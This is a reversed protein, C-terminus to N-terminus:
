LKNIIKDFLALLQEEIKAREAEDETEQLLAILRDAEADMEEIEAMEKEFKKQREIRRRRMRFMTVIIPVYVFILLLVIILVLGSTPSEEQMLSYHM